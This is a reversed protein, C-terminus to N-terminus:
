SPVTCRRGEASGRRNDVRSLSLLDTGWRDSSAALLRRGATAERTRAVRAVSGAPGRDEGRGDDTSVRMAVPSELLLWVMLLGITVARTPHPAGPRTTLEAVLVRVLIGYVALAILITALNGRGRRLNPRLPEVCARLTAILV